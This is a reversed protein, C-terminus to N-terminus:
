KEKTIWIAQGGAASLPVDLTTLSNVKRTEVAIQTRTPLSQDDSYIHAAYSGGPALFNLPLKLQRPVSNNITGVFWNDGSRRAITAFKGIEGNIVKTKDWTTPVQRFFEVEPEDHYMDPRDYWFISQLPSYAIVAMALQHAHTNKLRHDYYCVTYDASGAVYRTFPVTCNHEATPFHENGRIGEVTLLNPYTRAYGTPRYGDHINLLLHHEAAKQITETIWATETQPGVDVFGIKVGQVGWKEYRPFLIDRQKKMQRRDVYLILGVNKERGYRIIEPIDVAQGSNPFWRNAGRRPTTADGTEANESGYWGSDLLVYQLGATAAFDIIAKSNETTLTTDRMVKGPKIWAADPLALPPNLNLMLYNRELLDGPKEGVVFMRWPTSGGAPLTAAPNGASPNDATNSTTGGLASVLTDAAGPVPSLLMRPYNENDAEGLCAFLGSAYELTLPRECWPELDSIKARQYEGETGQEAYGFTQGPFHFESQEGTFHFEKAGPGPFSYRFAAGEDYARFIIRMLEGSAKQLDVDLEGYNDPVIKREGYVQTWEGHHQSPSIKAIAFGNTFDPLLGLRSELVIPQGLYTITYAPIGGAQLFFHVVVKADPSEIENAVPVNIPPACHTVMVNDFMVTTAVTAIRSGACLGIFLKQKLAVTAAGVQTWTKGDSSISGNVTDGSRELKLWCNGTLRGFTVRPESFNESAARVTAAVGASERVLLQAQWGPAEVNRGAEPSILLAADAGSSARLMLGFQSFQSSTQPVFRAIITGDGNVPLSAFQFGDNTGGINKGVGELTFISGDFHAAGAVSVAGVDQHTWPKPLGACISVPFSAPSEGASNAASLVYCYIEGSKVKADTYTTTTINRAIIQYDGNPTARKITYNKAGIAAVWTLKNAKPSGEVIIGAPAVPANQFQMAPNSAPRTFLLTGFGVHDAGPGGSGEPRVREAARQTFPAPIGRRNAYHNYIEEFVARFRGRGSAAIIKHHYKGTQDLTEAFPVDEGLNYQATYEFGKLVLDGDYGYLDLGQHWAIECCDGLHALGLQTHQQDRGSEQCQGTQNILYHTLRGDGAGNVYYNLAREFMARDNCFVGIAMMTKIAATDWNGNAFPAFDRIVPYIVERFHKETQQIEVPSWGADTYRLIEAANVMKFPGLGAMLVADRGTISKLTTSWANIIEKSKNAYAIDGSLCWMIACQYAANADSDYDNQGVTPNRGVRALPGRMKYDLRSQAHARFVEYGSYIPEAKVAVATKM